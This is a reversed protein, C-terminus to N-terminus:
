LKKLPRRGFRYPKEESKIMISIVSYKISKFSQWNIPIMM